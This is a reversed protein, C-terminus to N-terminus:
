PTTTALLQNGHAESTATITTPTVPPAPKTFTIPNGNDQTKFCSVTADESIIIDVTVQKTIVGGSTVNSGGNNNNNTVEFSTNSWHYHRCGIPSVIKSAPRKVLITAAPATAGDTCIFTTTFTITDPATVNKATTSQITALGHVAPMEVMVIVGTTASGDTGTSTTAFKTTTSATIIKATTIYYTTSPTPSLIGVLIIDM